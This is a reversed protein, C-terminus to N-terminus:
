RPRVRMQRWSRGSCNSTSYRCSDVREPALPHPGAADPKGWPEVCNVDAAASWGCEQSEARSESGAHAAHNAPQPQATPLAADDLVWVADDSLRPRFFPLKEAAHYRCWQWSQTRCATEAPLSGPRLWTDGAAAELVVCSPNQLLCRGDWHGVRGSGEDGNESGAVSWVSRSVECGSECGLPSGDCQVGSASGWCRHELHPFSGTTRHWCLHSM